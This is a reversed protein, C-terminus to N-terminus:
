STAANVSGADTVQHAVLAEFSALPVPESFLYGQFLKCGMEILAERQSATEVGEAVVEVDLFKAMTLVSHVIFRDNQEDEVNRVFSRDIKIQNFPLDRLYALSSYGLDSSCM